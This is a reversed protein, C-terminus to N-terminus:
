FKANLHELMEFTDVCRVDFQKCVTPIRIKRKRSMSDQTVVTGGIEMACAIVWPDAASLFEESQYRKYTADVHDAILRFGAQIQDTPRVCLGRDKRGRIWTALHDKYAVLEDYVLKPSCLSGASLQGDLFVWFQPVREFTYYRNKAEIFVNTDLWFPTV